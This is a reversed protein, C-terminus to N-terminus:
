EHIVKKMDKFKWGRERCIDRIQKTEDAKNDADFEFIINGISWKCIM